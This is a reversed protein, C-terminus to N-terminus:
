NGTIEPAILGYGGWDNQLNINLSKLENTCETEIKLAYGRCDSNVFFGTLKNNFLHQVKGTIEESIFNFQNSDMDGNCFDTAAKNAIAEIRRLKNSLKKGNVSDVGCLVALKELAQYHKELQIQKREKKNM